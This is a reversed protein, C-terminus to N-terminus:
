ETHHDLIVPGGDQIGASKKGSQRGPWGPQGSVNDAASPPGLGGRCAGVARGTAQAPAAGWAVPDPLGPAPLDAAASIRTDLWAAQRRVVSRVSVQRPWLPEQNTNARSRM